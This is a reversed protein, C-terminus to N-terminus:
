VTFLKITPFHTNITIVVKLSLYINVAIALMYSPKESPYISIGNTDSKRCYFLLQLPKFASHGAVNSHAYRSKLVVTEPHHIVRRLEM